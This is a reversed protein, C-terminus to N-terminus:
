STVALDTVTCKIIVNFNFVADTVDGPWPTSDVTLTFPHTGLQTPLVISAHNVTLNPNTWNM